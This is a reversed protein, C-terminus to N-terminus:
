NITISPLAPATGVLTITGSSIVDPPSKAPNPTGAQIGGTTGQSALVPPISMSMSGGNYLNFVGPASQIFHYGTGGTTNQLALNLTTNAQPQVRAYFSATSYNGGSVQDPSALTESNLTLDLHGGNRVFVLFPNYPSRFLGGLDDAASGINGGVTINNMCRIKSSANGDATIQVPADWPLTFNNNVIEFQSTGNASATITLQGFGGNAHMVQNFTNNDVIANFTGAGPNLSVGGQPFNFQMTGGPCGPPGTLHDNVIFQNKYLIAGITGTASTQHAVVVSATACNTFINGMSANVRAKDGLIVTADASGQAFVLIGTKGVNIPSTCGFEKITTNFSNSQAVLTLKGTTHTFLELFTAGNQLTSNTVVVSDIIGNIRIMGESIDDGKGTIHYRNSNEILCNILKLGHWETAANNSFLAGNIANDSFRRMSVNRLTLGGLVSQGQIGDIFSNTGNAASADGSAAIDQINMYSLSVLGGTNSIRIADADTINQITGGSNAAGNGTVSFVGTGTNNLNIATVDPSTSGQNVSISQFKVGNAGITSGDINVAMKTLATTAGITNTNGTINVTGGGTVNVATSAQTNLILTAAINVVSSNSTIDIGRANNNQTLSGGWTITAASTAVLFGTGSPNTIQTNSFTFSASSGGFIDIGADGGNLTVMNNFNYQSGDANNFQLGTGNTANIAGSFTVIGTSHNQVNVAAFNNSQTITGNYTLALTGGVINVVAGSANSLSGFGGTFSGTCSTLSIGAAGGSSSISSFTVDLNGSGIIMMGGGLTNNISSSKIQLNGVTSGNLATSASSGFIVGAITDNMGLLIPANIVPASGANQILSGDTPCNWAVGEGILKQNDLLTGGATYTGAFLFIYGGPSSATIAQPITTFPNAYSGDGNMPDGNDDVFVYQLAINLYVVASDVSVANHEDKIKYYFSDIAGATCTAIFTFSGDANVTLKAGSALTIQVGVNATQGNVEAVMKTAGNDIDTDNNLIGPASTTFPSTQSVMTYNDTVAVPPDNVGDITMTVTATQNCAIDGDTVAYTWSDMASQGQALMEFQGNPNYSYSGNNNQTLIAGSGLNIAMGVSAASGNVQSVSLMNMEVDADNALVNGSSVTTHEDTMFADNVAVPCDNVPIVSIIRTAMNSNLDGDNVTFSVTRSASSPNDSINNYTFQRLAAQYDAVSASGTLTISGNSSNFAGASIGVPLMGSIGLVDQGDVYNSTIQIIASELNVDDPDTATINMTIITAGMNETFSLPAAEVNALVPPMNFAISVVASDMFGETDIIKYHFTDATTGSFGTGDYVFSGNPQVTVTAGYDTMQAMGVAGGQVSIVTLNENYPPNPLQDNVDADNALVGPAAQVINMGPYSYQDNIAVPTAMITSPDLTTNPDTTRNITLNTLSSNQNNKIELEYKISDGPNAIGDMNADHTITGELTVMTSGFSIQSCGTSYDFILHVPTTNLLTFALNAGGQVCNLGYNETWSDNIAFKYEYYGAPIGDFDGYWVQNVADFQLHTISCAPDWDGPCGLDSQFSGGVTVSAPQSSIVTCKTNYDFAVYVMTNASATFSINAGNLVCNLGYNEIWGDNIAIKGQWNGAPIAFHGIWLSQNPDFQLHTINCAPDWDGACGLESQFDGGFTVTMPIVEAPELLLKGFPKIQGPNTAASFLFLILVVISLDHYGKLRLDPKYSLKPTM